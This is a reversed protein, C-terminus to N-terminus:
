NKAYKKKVKKVTKRAVNEKDTKNQHHELCLCQYGSPECFLREIYYDWSVFGTIEVVPDIHDMATQERTWLTEKGERVCEACKYYVRYKPNGNKSYGILLKVKANNRAASKGPWSLSIRRLRPVLWRRIDISQKAM